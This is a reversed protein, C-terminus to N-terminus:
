ITRGIRKRFETIETDQHYFCERQTRRDEPSEEGEAIKM